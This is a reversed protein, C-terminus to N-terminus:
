TSVFLKPKINSDTKPILKRPKKQIQNFLVKFESINEIMRCNKKQNNKCELDSILYSIIIKPGNLSQTVFEIGLSVKSLPFYSYIFINM